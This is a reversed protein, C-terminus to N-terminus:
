GSLKDRSSRSGLTSFIRHLGRQIRPSQTNLIAMKFKGLITRFQIDPFYPLKVLELQRLYESELKSSALNSEQKVLLLNCGWHQPCDRAVLEYGYSGFEQCLEIANFDEKWVLDVQTEILIVEVLNSELFSKAGEILVKNSGEVDIWLATPLKSLSNAIEFDLTTTAVEVQELKSDDEDDFRLYGESSWSKTDKSKLFLGQNGVRNSIAKNIYIVGATKVLGLFNDFVHPNAEFAVAKIAPFRTKFRRSAFADHAGCEVFQSIKTNECVQYFIEELLRASKEIFLAKKKKKSILPRRNTKMCKAFRIDVERTLETFQRM